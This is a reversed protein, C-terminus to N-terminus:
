KHKDPKKVIEEPVFNMDSLCMLIQNGADSLRNPIIYQLKFSNPLTTLRSEIM